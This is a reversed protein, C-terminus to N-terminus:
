YTILSIATLFHLPLIIRQFGLGHEPFGMYPRENGSKKKHHVEVILYLNQKDVKEVYGEYVKGDLMNCQVYQNMHKKCQKLMQQSHMNLAKMYKRYSM